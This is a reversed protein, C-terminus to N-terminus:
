GCCGDLNLEDVSALGIIVDEFGVIIEWSGKLVKDEVDEMRGKGLGSEVGM